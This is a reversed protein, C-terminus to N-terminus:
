VQEEAEPQEESGQEGTLEELASQAAALDAKAQEIQEDQEEVQAEEEEASEEEATMSQGKSFDIDQFLEELDGALDVIEEESIAPQDPAASDPDELEEEPAAEEGAAM